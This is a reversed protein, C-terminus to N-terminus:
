MNSRLFESSTRTASSRGLAEFEHRLPEPDRDNVLTFAEGPILRAWRAFVHPHRRCHPIGTVDLVAPRDLRGGDLLARFDATLTTLEGDFLAALAPLLAAQEVAM